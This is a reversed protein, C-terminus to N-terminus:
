LKQHRIIKCFFSYAKAPNLSPDNSLFALVRVVQGGGCGVLFGEISPYNLSSSCMKISLLLLMEFLNFTLGFPVTTARQTQLIYRGLHYATTNIIFVRFYAIIQQKPQDPQEDGVVLSSWLRSRVFDNVKARYQVKPM